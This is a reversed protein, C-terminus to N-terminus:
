FRNNLVISKLDQSVRRGKRTYLKGGRAPCIAELYSAALMKAENVYALFTENMARMKYTEVKLERYLRSIETREEPPLGLILTYFPTKETNSAQEQVARSSGGENSLATFLLAREDELLTFEGGLRSMERSKEDFDTWERKIVTQRVTEQAASIKKLLEIEANIVSVCRKFNWGEKM